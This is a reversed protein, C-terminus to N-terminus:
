ERPLIIQKTDHDVIAGLHELLDVGIVGDVATGTLRSDAVFEFNYVHMRFDSFSRSGIEVTQFDAHYVPIRQGELGGSAGIQELRSITRGLKEAAAESLKTYPAGTDIFFQFEQGEITLDVVQQTAQMRYPILEWKDPSLKLYDSVKQNGLFENLQRFHDQELAQLDLYALDSESLQGAAVDIMSGDPKELTISQDAPDYSDSHRARITTGAASTWDRYAAPKSKVTSTRDLPPKQLLITHSAFDYVAHHARLVDIGLLGDMDFSNPNNAHFDIVLVNIDKVTLDGLQLSELKAQRGMMQGQWTKLPITGFTKLGLEEAKETSLLTGNAGTDVVLHLGVSDSIGKISPGASDLTFNVRVFGSDALYKDLPLDIFHSNLWRQQVEKRDPWDAVFKRDEENFRELPLVAEKSDPFRLRIHSEDKIAIMRASRKTGGSPSWDRYALVAPVSVDDVSTMTLEPLIESSPLTSSPTNRASSTKSVMLLQDGSFVLDLAGRTERTLAAIAEASSESKAESEVPRVTWNAVDTWVAFWKGDASLRPTVTVRNEPLFDLSGVYGKELVEIVSGDHGIGILQGAQFDIRILDHVQWQLPKPGRSEKWVLINGDASLAASQTGEAAVAVFRYDAAEEPVRPDDADGLGLTHLQFDHSVALLASEGIAVGAINKWESTADAKETPMAGFATVEGSESLAVFHEGDGDIRVTPNATEPASLTAGWTAIHGEIDLAAGTELTGTVAVFKKSAPDFGPITGSAPPSQPDAPLSWILVDGGRKPLAPTLLTAQEILERITSFFGDSTLMEAVQENPANDIIQAVDEAYQVLMGLSQNSMVEAMLDPDHPTLQKLEVLLGRIEDVQSADSLDIDPEDAHPDPASTKESQTQAEKDDPETGFFYPFMKVGFGIVIVALLLSWAALGFAPGKKEEPSPLSAPTTKARQGASATTALGAAVVPSAATPRKPQNRVTLVPPSSASPALHSPAKAPTPQPIPTPPEALAVAFEKTSAFREKPNAHLARAIVGDYHKGIEPVIQSPPHLFGRPITGSLMQYLLVGVAYLDGEVSGTSNPPMCEPAVFTPYASNMASAGGLLLAFNALGLGTVKLNGDPAVRINSPNLWGHCQGSAHLAQLADLLQRTWAVAHEKTVTGSEILHNLEHGESFTSTVFYGAKADGGFDLIEEAQSNRFQGATALEQALVTEFGPRSSLVPPLLRLAVLRNFKTDRAKYIAGCPDVAIQELILHNPVLNEVDAAAPPWSTSDSDSDPQVQSNDNDAPM